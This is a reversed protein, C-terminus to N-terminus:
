KLIITAIDGIKVGTKSFSGDPIELVYLALSQPVFVEPYSEPTMHEKVGVIVGAGDFWVVDIPFNMDKMWIGWMSKKEFVFLMGTGGELTTRGSLGRERASDTDVVEVDFSHKGLIVRNQTQNKIVIPTKEVVPVSVIPKTNLFLIVIVGVIIIIFVTIYKKIFM